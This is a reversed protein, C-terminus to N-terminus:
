DYTRIKMRRRTRKSSARIMAYSVVCVCLFVLAILMGEEDNSPIAAIFEYASIAAISTTIIYLAGHFM